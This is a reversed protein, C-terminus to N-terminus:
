WLEKAFHGYRGCIYCRGQKQYQFRKRGSHQKWSGSARGFAQSATLTSQRFGDNRSFQPDDSAGAQSLSQGEMDPTLDAIAPVAQFTVQLNETQSLKVHKRLADDLGEIFILTRTVESTEAGAYLCLGRFSEIYEELTGNQRAKLLQRFYHRKEARPSFALDMAEKLALWSRAIPRESEATFSMLWRRADGTIFSIAFAVHGNSPITALVEEM